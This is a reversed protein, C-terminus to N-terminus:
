WMHHILLYLVLFLMFFNERRILYSIHLRVESMISGRGESAAALSRLSHPLGFAGDLHRELLAARTNSIHHGHNGSASSLTMEQSIGPSSSRIAYNSSQGGPETGVSSLLSRRVIETLRRPYQPYSRHSWPSSSNVGATHSTSAINGAIGNWNTPQQSSSGMETAPAFVPHESISRPISGSISEGYLREASIASSNSTRSSSAVSWRTQPNQRVHSPVPQHYHIRNEVPTPQLAELHNRVLRSSHRSSPVNSNGVSAENSIPIGSIRHDLHHSGSFRLRLNRRSSEPNLSFPNASVAGGVGIRIGSNSQEPGGGAGSSQGTHVEPAKRKLSCGPRYDPVAFADSSSGIHPMKENSSSRDSIHTSTDEESGRLESCMSLDQSVAFPGSIQLESETRSGHRDVDITNFSLINSSEPHHQELNLAAQSRTSWTHERRRESCDAQNQTSSEGLSWEGTLENHGVHHMYEPARNEASAQLSTWSVRSDIAADSSTSGHDFGINEPLTTVTSRQGQM